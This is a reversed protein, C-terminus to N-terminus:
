NYVKERTEQEIKCRICRSAVPRANLRAISIDKGCDECIGYDGNEIDELANKIKRILTRERGRIRLRYTFEEDISARDNTDAINGQSDRLISVTDGAQVLLEDLIEELREKFYILYNEHMCLHGLSIIQRM